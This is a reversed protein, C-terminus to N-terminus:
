SPLLSKIWFSLAGWLDEVADGPHRRVSVVPPPPLDPIDIPPEPTEVLLGEGAVHVTAELGSSLTLPGPTVRLRPSRYPQGAMAGYISMDVFGYDFLARADDFHTRRGETGLVVAYLERGGREATAVYTLLAQSTFGTKIGNSGEFDELLLNTSTGVRRTGDPADPVV